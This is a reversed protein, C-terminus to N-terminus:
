GTLSFGHAVWARIGGALHRDIDYGAAQAIEIATVSRVGGACMFVVTKDSTQAILAPLPTDVLPRHTLESLPINIAGEIRAQEFEHPERVDILVVSAAKLALDLDHSSLNIIQM